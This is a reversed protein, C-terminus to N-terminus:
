ATKRTNGQESKPQFRDYQELTEILMDLTSRRAYLYELQQNYSLNGASTMPTKKALM